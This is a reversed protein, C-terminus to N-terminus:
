GFGHVTLYIGILTGCVLVCYGKFAGRLAVPANRLEMFYLGVFRVKALAIVLIVITAARPDDGAGVGHNTGLWWSTATALVLILWVLTVRSRLLAQVPSM